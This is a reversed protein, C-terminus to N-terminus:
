RKLKRYAKFQELFFFDKKEKFHVLELHSPAGPSTKWHSIGARLVLGAVGATLCLSDEGTQSGRFDM